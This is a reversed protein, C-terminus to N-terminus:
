LNYILTSIYINTNPTTVQSTQSPHAFDSLSTGTADAYRQAFREIQGNLQNAKVSPKIHMHRHPQAHRSPILTVNPEADSQAPVGLHGNLLNTVGVREVSPTVPTMVASVMGGRVPTVPQQQVTPRIATAAQGLTEKTYVQVRKM